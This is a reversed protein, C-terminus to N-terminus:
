GEKVLKVKKTKPKIFPFSAIRAKHLKGRVDINIENGVIACDAQIYAMGIFANKNPSYVGSTVFGVEKGQWFIPYGQRPFAKEQMVFGIRKRNPGKEKEELLIQKGIFDKNLKVAWALNAQYPTITEDIEHGYLPYGAEIRLIDRSGLGCLMLGFGEGAEKIKDWWRNGQDWSLYIEFGDEGTYGSRSILVEKDDIQKQIFRLYGLEAFDRGFVKDIIKESCEGQISILCIKDSEDSIEVSSNLNKKFWDLVKNKNSANVVCLLSDGLHYIMLDDIIGAQSNLLLNYQMQGQSIASIDNCTLKQLFDFCGSRSIIIQGMHSVDFMGCAKRVGQAEELMSKYEVALAWGSFDVMRGSGEIHKQYFPTKKFEM